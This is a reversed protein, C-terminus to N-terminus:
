EIISLPYGVISIKSAPVAEPNNPMWVKAFCSDFSLLLMGHAQKGGAVRLGAVVNPIERADTLGFKPKGYQEHLHVHFAGSGTDLVHQMTGRIAASNIRAGVSPDYIYNDDSVPRYDSLLIMPESASQNGLKGFVFGVREAAFAHPRLLDQKIEGLLKGTLRIQVKM